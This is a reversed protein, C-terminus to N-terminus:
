LTKKGPNEGSRKEKRYETRVPLQMGKGSTQLGEEYRRGAKQFHCFRDILVQRFKARPPAGPRSPILM